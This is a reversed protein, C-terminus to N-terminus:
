VEETRERTNEVLSHGYGRTSCVADYTRTYLLLPPPGPREVGFRRWSPREEVAPPSGAWVIEERFRSM